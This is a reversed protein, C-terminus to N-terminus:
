DYHEELIEDIFNGNKDLPRGQDDWNPPIGQLAEQVQRETWRDPWIDWDSKMWSRHIKVLEELSYKSNFNEINCDFNSVIHRLEEIGSDYKRM